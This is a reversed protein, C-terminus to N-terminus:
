LRSKIKQYGKDLLSVFNSPLKEKAKKILEDDVGYMAEAMGGVICANTDTDGGYSIVKKISDEFNESTFLAYLCNDITDCCRYNFSSFKQYKLNISLKKMIEEKKLGKRAYYIILAILTASDISEKTNHSPMTALRCNEVVDEKANFMYGVPSIRMMAGNGVSNGTTNENLWKIFGPSFMKDFYKDVNPKLKKYKNGYMRLYKNYDGGNIIADLIAITLITDDSYFSKETILDEVSVSTVKKLQDYEYVSGALDGIIAGWM